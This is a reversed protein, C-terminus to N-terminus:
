CPGVSRMTDNTDPPLATFRSYMNVTYGHGSFNEGSWWCLLMRSNNLWSSVQDSWRGNSYEPHTTSVCKEGTPLVCVLDHMDAYFSNWPVEPNLTLSPGTFDRGYYFCVRGSPCLYDTATALQSGFAGGVTAESAEAPTGSTAAALALGILSLVVRRYRM